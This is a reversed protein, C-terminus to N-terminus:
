RRRAQADAALLRQNLSVIDHNDAKQLAHQDAKTLRLCSPLMHMNLMHTCALTLLRQLCSPPTHLHRRKTTKSPFNANGNPVSINCTSMFLIELYVQYVQTHYTSNPQSSPELRSVPNPRLSSNMFNLSDCGPLPPARSAKVRGVLWGCQNIATYPRQM